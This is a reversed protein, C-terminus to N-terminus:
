SKGELIRKLEGLDIIDTGMMNTLAYLAKDACRARDMVFDFDITSEM